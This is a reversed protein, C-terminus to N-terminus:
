RDYLEADFDEGLYAEREEVVCALIYYFNTLNEKKNFLLFLRIINNYM